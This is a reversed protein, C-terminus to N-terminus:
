RWRGAGGSTEGGGGSPQPRPTVLQPAALPRNTTTPREGRLMAQGIRVHNLALALTRAAEQDAHFGMSNEAEVFDILFQARRQYV